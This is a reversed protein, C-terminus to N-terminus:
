DQNGGNASRIVSDWAGIWGLSQCACAEGFHTIGVSCLHDQYVTEFGRTPFCHFRVAACPVAESPVPVGQTAASWKERGDSLWSCTPWGVGRWGWGGGGTRETSFTYIDGAKQATTTEEFSHEYHRCGTNKSEGTSHGQFHSKGIGMILLFQWNAADPRQKTIHIQRKNEFVQLKRKM